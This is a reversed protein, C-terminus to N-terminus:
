RVGGLDRNAFRFLFAVIRRQGLHRCLEKKM